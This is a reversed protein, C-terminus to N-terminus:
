HFTQWTQTSLSFLAECISNGSERGLHLGWSSPFFRAHGSLSSAVSQAHTHSRICTHLPIHPLIKFRLIHVIVIEHSLFLSQINITGLSKQNIHGESRKKERWTWTLKEGQGVNCIGYCKHINMTDLAYISINFSLESRFQTGNNPQFFLIDLKPAVCRRKLKYM